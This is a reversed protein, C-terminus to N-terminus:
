KTYGHVAEILVNEFDSCIKQWSYNENVFEMGEYSMKERMEKNNFLHIVAQEIEDSIATYIVKDEAIERVGKLDTSIVPKRCAMYELLKLPFSNQSDGTTKRSVMCVDMCSIYNPLERTLVSGVFIVNGAIGLQQASKKLQFSRDGDGIIVMKVHYGSSVLRKIAAFTQELEVWESLVGVFGLIFDREIGLKRKLNGSDRPYFLETDVGNPIIRSTDPPFCYSNLLSDTVLTIKDSTELSKNFMYKGASHGINKFVRPIQPSTKIAEPLDDAVDFVTPIDYSKVKKGVYYGAILSNFNIHVDYDSFHLKEDFLDFNKILLLEQLVPNIHRETIYHLRADKLCEELYEDHKEELWWAKVSLITIEHNRSLHKIIHHPRQPNIRKVDPLSTILIKM